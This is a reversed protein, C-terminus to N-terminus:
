KELHDCDKCYGYIELNHGVVRFGNEELEPTFNEMPCNDMKIIKHCNICVAYHKHKPHNIEYVAMEQNM